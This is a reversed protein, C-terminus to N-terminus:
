NYIVRYNMGERLVSKRVEAYVNVEQAQNGLVIDQLEQIGNGPVVPNFGAGVPIFQTQTYDVQLSEVRDRIFCGFYSNSNTLDQTYAASALGAANTSLNSFVGILETGPAHDCMGWTDHLMGLKEGTSNIGTGGFMNMGNLRVQIVEDANAVARLKGSSILTANAANASALSSVPSAFMLLRNVFKGQFGHLITSTTATASGGAAVIAANPVMQFADHEMASFSVGQYQSMAQAVVSENVLEDVVLLTDTLTALSAINTGVHLTSLVDTNFEIVLRLNKYLMSPLFQSNKLFPLCRRLDLAFRSTTATTQKIEPAQYAEAVQGGLTGNQLFGIAHGVKLIEQGVNNRNAKNYNKFAMFAGVERLQDLVVSGDYLTINKIYAWVGGKKNFQTNAVGISAGVNHLRLSSLFLSGEPLQWEARNNNLTLIPDYVNSKVGSNYFAM